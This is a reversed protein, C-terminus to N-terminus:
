WFADDERGRVERRSYDAIKRILDEPLPENYFIQLSGKTTKHKELQKRFAKLAAATPAFNCHAKHASFAFLFRPEVFFPTGWKIAEEAEPAVSKLIAYLRHLHPQAERPASRIYEAITTPRKSAV